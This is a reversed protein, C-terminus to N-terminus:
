ATIGIIKSCARTNLLKITNECLVHGKSYDGTKALDEYSAGRLEAIVVEAMDVNLVSGTPMWRNLVFNLTGFDSDYKQVVVGFENVSQDSVLRVNSGNKLIDNVIRKESANLFSYYDTIAGADWMKQLSDLIDNESLKGIM